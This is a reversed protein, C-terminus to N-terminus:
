PKRIPLGAAVWQEFGGMNRAQVGDAASNEAAIQARGGGACYFIVQKDRPLSAKFATWEPSGKEIKSFPIWKAKEATGTKKLEAEERVDVLVAFDNLIMGYSEKADISTVPKPDPKCGAALALAALL